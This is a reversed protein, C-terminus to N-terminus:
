SLLSEHIAIVDQLWLIHQLLDTRLMDVAVPSSNGEILAYMSRARALCGDLDGLLRGSKEAYRVSLKRETENEASTSIDETLTSFVAARSGVCTPCTRSDHDIIAM